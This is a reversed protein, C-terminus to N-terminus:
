AFEGARRADTFDQFVRQLRRSVGSRDFLFLPWKVARPYDVGTLFLGRIQM